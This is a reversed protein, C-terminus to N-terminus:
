FEYVAEIGFQPSWMLIDDFQDEYFPNFFFVRGSARVGVRGMDPRAARGQLLMVDIGTVGGADFELRDSYGGSNHDSAPSIDASWVMAPGLRGIVEWHVKTPQRHPIRLGPAVYLAHRLRFYERPELDEEELAYLPPLAVPSVVGGIDIYVFRTLRSDAGLVVGVGNPGELISAGAHVKIEPELPPRVAAAPGSWTMASCVAFLLGITSFRM